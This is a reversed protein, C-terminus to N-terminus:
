RGKEGEQVIPHFLPGAYCPYKKIRYVGKEPVSEAWCYQQGPRDDNKLQAVYWLVLRANNIPEPNPEIFKEPGQRYDTNCCPGITALDSEGEDRDTHYRTVYAFANDGRGGDGFQGRGPEVFYGNGGTDAVRYQYGETTYVTDKKQEQWREAAWAKWDNGQWEAFTNQDGAFTIRTVPRYTGQNGCGRGLSAVAVRFRGDDYFEFAQEYSYNCPTPYGESWYSQRVAFGDKKPLDTFEPGTFAVVASQSFFPCGVADSYGFGDAGSYSVHWDVLKADHLVPKGKFKVDSLRLGDSSTLIYDFAWGNREHHLSKACFVNTLVENQLWKETVAVPPGTRGVETWRTGVLALDTLDVIAWLAREDKVFTPAVCLHLSRECRTRNLATKTSAMLADKEQPKFGLAAAVEPAAAAIRTALQTLHEPLDPQTSPQRTVFLVQKANADVVANATLNRAFNYMEVRFCLTRRCIQAPGNFDSERLPYVGFIENFLPEGTKEDRTERLFREDQLAIEQVARRPEDLNGLPLVPPTQRLAAEIQAVREKVLPDGSAARAALAGTEGGVAPANPGSEKRCAWAGLSAALLGIIFLRM